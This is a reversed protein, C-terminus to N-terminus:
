SQLFYFSLNFSSKEHKAQSEILKKSLVRTGAVRAAQVSFAGLTAALRDAFAEPPENSAWECPKLNEEFIALFKWNHNQILSATEM